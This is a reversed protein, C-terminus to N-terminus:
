STGHNLELMVLKPMMPWWLKADGSLFMTPVMIKEEDLIKAAKFYEDMDWLFNELEKANRAGGFAKPEPTKIKSPSPEATSWPEVPM